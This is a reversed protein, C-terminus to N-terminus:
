RAAVSSKRSAKEAAQEMLPRVKTAFLEQTKLSQELGVGGYHCILCFEDFRFRDWLDILQQAVREPSGAYVIEHDLLQEYSLNRTNPFDDAAYFGYGADILRQRGEPSRDLSDMPSVNFDIFGKLPVRGEEVARDHDEDLNVAKIYAFNSPKGAAECAAHYQAIAEEFAVNPAPGGLAIGWGNEVARPVWKASTGVQWIPPHPKQLPRPVVALDHAKYHKGDYSFRENTWAALLIDVCEPFREISEELAINAPDQLWAHGRGIGVDFRGDLLIDALALEGALVFPNHLPLTHCLARFRIDRTRQALTAFLALPATSISFQEFWPHEVCCYVGYGLRDAAVGVELADHILKAHDGGPPCQIETYTGFRLAV